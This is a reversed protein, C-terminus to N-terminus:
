IMEFQLRTLSCVKLRGIYYLTIYLVIIIYFNDWTIILYQRSTGVQYCIYLYETLEGGYHRIKLLVNQTVSM